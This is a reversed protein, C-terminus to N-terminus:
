QNLFKKVQNPDISITTLRKHKNHQKNMKKHQNTM